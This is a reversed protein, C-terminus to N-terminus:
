NNNIELSCQYVLAEVLDHMNMILFEKRSPDGQIRIHNGYLLGHIERLEETEYSGIERLLRKNEIMLEKNEETLEELKESLDNNISVDSKASSLEEKLKTIESNSLSLENKLDKIETEAASIKANREDMHRHYMSSLSKYNETSQRLVDDKKELQEWTHSRNKICRNIFDTRDFDPDDSYQNFLEQVEAVPRFTIPKAM